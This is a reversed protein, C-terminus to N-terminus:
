CLNSQEFQANGCTPLKNHQQFTQFPLHHRSTFQDRTQNYSVVVSNRADHRCSIRLLFKRLAMEYVTQRIHRRTNQHTHTHLFAGVEESSIIAEMMLTSTARLMKRRFM